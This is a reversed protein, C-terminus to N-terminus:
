SECNHVLSTIFWTKNSEQAPHPLKPPNKRLLTRLWPFRRKM